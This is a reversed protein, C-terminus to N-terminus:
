WQGDCSRKIAPHGGLTGQEVDGLGWAVRGGRYLHFLPLPWQPELGVTQAKLDVIAKRDLCSSGVTHPYCGCKLARSTATSSVWSARLVM